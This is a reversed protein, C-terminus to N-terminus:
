RTPTQAQLPGALSSVPGLLNAAAGLPNAARSQPEFSVVRNLTRTKRSHWHIRKHLWVKLLICHFVSDISYSPNTGLHCNQWHGLDLGRIAFGMM